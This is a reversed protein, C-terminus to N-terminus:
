RVTFLHVGIENSYVFPVNNRSLLTCLAESLEPRILYVIRFPLYSRVEDRSFEMGHYNSHVRPLQGNHGHTLVASAAGRLTSLSM